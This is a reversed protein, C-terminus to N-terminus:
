EGRAVKHVSVAIPAFRFWYVGGGIVAALIAVKLMTKLFGVVLNSRSAM